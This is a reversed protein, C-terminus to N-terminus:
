NHKDQEVAWTYGLGYVMQIYQPKSPYEELKNRLRSITVSLANEDVYESDETWIKDVLNARSLVIGKNMILVKLLRQETKSLVIENKNKYFKMNEFDFVFDDIVVKDALSKVARRLITSVRARLIMLSFPKTIYDDGGLGLGTVVDLEMDNATLFIIPVASTKRIDQCLDCGNGDPLNIDLIILDVQNTDLQEKAQKVTLAQMFVFNDQKLTLVIGNNLAMDDEVILINPM